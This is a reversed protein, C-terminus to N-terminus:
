RNATANSPKGLCESRRQAEYEKCQVSISVLLLGALVWLWPRGFANNLQVVAPLVALCVWAPLISPTGFRAGARRPLLWCWTWAWIGLLILGALGFKWFLDFALVNSTGPIVRARLPDYVSLIPSGTWSLSGGNANKVALIDLQRTDLSSVAKVRDVSSLARYVFWFAFTWCFGIILLIAIRSRRVAPICVLVVAILIALASRTFIVVILPALLLAYGNLGLTLAAAFLMAAFMALWTAEAFFLVPRLLGAVREGSNQSAAPLILVQVVSGVIVVWVSGKVVRRLQSVRLSSLLIVSILLLTVNSVIQPLYSVRGPAGFMAIAPIVALFCTAILLAVLSIYRSYRALGLLIVPALFLGVVHSVYLSYGVADITLRDLSSGLILLLACGIAFGDAPVSHGGGGSRYFRFRNAADNM